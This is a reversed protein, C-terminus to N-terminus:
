KKPGSAVWGGLLTALALFFASLAKLVSRRASRM